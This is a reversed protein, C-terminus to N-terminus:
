IPTCQNWLLEYAQVLRNRLDNKQTPLYQLEGGWMIMAGQDKIMAGPNNLDAIMPQMPPIQITSTTFSESGQTILVSEKEGERCIYDVVRKLTKLDICGHLLGSYNALSTTM